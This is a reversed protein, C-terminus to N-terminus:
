RCRALLAARLRDRSTEMPCIDAALWVILKDEDGVAAVRFGHFDRIQARRYEITSGSWRYEGFLEPYVKAQGAM